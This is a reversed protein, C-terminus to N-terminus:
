TFYSGFLTAIAVIVVVLAGIVPADMAEEKRRNRRFNTASLVYTNRM